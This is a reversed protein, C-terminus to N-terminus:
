SKLKLVKKQENEISGDEKTKELYWNFIKIKGTM